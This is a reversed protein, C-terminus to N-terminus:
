KLRELQKEAAEVLVQKFSKPRKEVLRLRQELDEFASAALSNKRAWVSGLKRLEQELRDIRGSVIGEGQKHLEVGSCREELGKVIEFFKDFDEKDMESM